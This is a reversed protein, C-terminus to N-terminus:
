RPTQSVRRGPGQGRGNAQAARLREVYAALDAAAYRVARGIRVCPLEGRATLAWLTRPSVALLRAAEAGTRLLPAPAQAALPVLTTEAPPM